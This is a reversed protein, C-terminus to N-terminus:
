PLSRQPSLSSGFQRRCPNEQHIAVRWTAVDQGELVAVHVAEAADALWPWSEQTGDPRAATILAEGRDCGRLLLTLYMVMTLRTAVRGEADRLRATLALVTGLDTAAIAHADAEALDRLAALSHVRVQPPGGVSGPPKRAPAFALGLQEAASPVGPRLAATDM